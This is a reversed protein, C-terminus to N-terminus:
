SVGEAVGAQPQAEPLVVRGAAVPVEGVADRGGGIDETVAVGGERRADALDAPRPAPEVQRVHLAVAPPKQVAVLDVRVAVIPVGEAVQDRPAPRVRRRERPAPAAAVLAVTVAAQLKQTVAVVVAPRPPKDALVRRAVAVVPVGVAAIVRHVPAVRAAQQLLCLRQVTAEQIRGEPRGAPGERRVRVGRRSHVTWVRESHLANENM